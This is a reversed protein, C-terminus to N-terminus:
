LERLLRNLQLEFNDEGVNKIYQKLGDNSNTINILTQKLKKNEKKLTDEKIREVIIDDEGIHYTYQNYLSVNNMYKAYLLKQKLPNTKIYADQTDTKSRGQLEDIDSLRMTEEATLDLGKLYTANFRRLAHASFKSFGGAKGYGLADNLQKLLYAVYPKGYKFLPEDLKFEEKLKLRAIAQTTEPNVFGYYPKKTKQRILKTEWIINDMNALKHMAEVPDDEQHYPYLDEFFQRNTLNKTEENSYGGTAMALIRIQLNPKAISIANRIEEKTLIDNFDIYPNRKISKINLPPIYPVTVRNRKYITKIIQYYKNVTGGTNTEVLYNRYNLLRDCLSLLHEPTRETQEKIAEEVLKEISTKHFTEYSHVASKYTSISRKCLGVTANEFVRSKKYM